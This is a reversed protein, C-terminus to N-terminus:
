RFTRRKPNPQCLRINMDHNMPIEYLRRHRQCKGVILRTHKMGPGHQPFLCPWHKWSTALDTCGIKQVRYVPRHSVNTMATACESQIGPWHDDCTIRLTM